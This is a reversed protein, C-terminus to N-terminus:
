ISYPCNKDLRLIADKNEFRYRSIIDMCFKTQEQTMHKVLENTPLFWQPLPLLRTAIYKAGHLYDTTCILAGSSMHTLKYGISDKYIMFPYCVYHVGQETSWTKDMKTYKYESNKRKFKLLEIM